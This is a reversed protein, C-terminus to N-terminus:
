ILKHKIALSAAQTRNKVGLKSICASVHHRATAHSIVLQDAIEENSLGEVILALVQKERRTLDPEFSQPGSKSNVLARTAEPSLTPQGTYASRIAEALQDISSDKLLYSTAGAELADQVMNDKTFSTLIIIKVSPYKELVKRTTELGDMDPMVMDMLIVDPLEQQCLALAKNGSSAEGVLELDDFALLMTVLGSRVIPHDDVIMVKIREAKPM